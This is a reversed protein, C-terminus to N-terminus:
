LNCCEIHSSARFSRRRWRRRRSWCFLPNSDLWTLSMVGNLMMKKEDEVAAARWPFDISCFQHRNNNNVLIKHKKIFFSLSYIIIYIPFIYSSLITSGHLVRCEQHHHAMLGGDNVIKRVGDSERWNLGIIISVYMPVSSLSYTCSCKKYHDCQNIYTQVNPSVDLWTLSYLRLNRSQGLIFLYNYNSVM